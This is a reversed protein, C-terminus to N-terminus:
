DCISAQCSISACDYDSQCAQGKDCPPCADGGCDIGTESGNSVCDACTPNDPDVAPCPPDVPAEACVAESCAGSGCDADNDCRHGLACPGCADGGCDVDTEGGNLTCDACNPNGPDVPQCEREGGGGGEGGSGGAGGGGTAGPATIPDEWDEIGLLTDCGAVFSLLVLYLSARPTAM